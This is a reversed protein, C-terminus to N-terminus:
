LAFELSFLCSTPSPLIKKPTRKEEKDQSIKGLDGQSEFLSKRVSSFKSHRYWSM